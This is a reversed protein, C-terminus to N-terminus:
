MQSHLNKSSLSSLVHPWCLSMLYNHVFYFSSTMHASAIIDFGSIYYFGCLALISFLVLSLFCRRACTYPM